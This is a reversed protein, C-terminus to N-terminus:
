GDANEQLRDLIFGVAIALERDNVAVTSARAPKAPRAEEYRHLSDAIESPSRATYFMVDGGVHRHAQRAVQTDRCLVYAGARVAQRMQQGDGGHELPLWVRHHQALLRSWLAPSVVSEVRAANLMERVRDPLWAIQPLNSGPGFSSAPLETAFVPRLTGGEDQYQRLGCLGIDCGYRQDPELRILLDDSALLKRSASTTLACDLPCDLEFVKDPGVGAYSVLDQATAPDSAVVVSSQRWLRFAATQDKWFPAHISAAYAEPVRRQALDTCFIATPRAPYVGRPTMAELVMWRDCDLFNAGWDRPLVVREIGLLSIPLRLHEFMRQANDSLVREWSVRRVTADDFNEALFCAQETWTRDNGAPLGFVIDGVTHRLPAALRLAQALARARILTELSRDGLLIAVKLNQGPNM